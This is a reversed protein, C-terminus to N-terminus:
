MERVLGPYTQISEKESANLKLNYKKKQWIREAMMAKFKGEGFEERYEEDTYGRRKNAPNFLYRQLQAKVM